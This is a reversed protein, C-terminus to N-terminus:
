SSKESYHSPSQGFQERFCKAFYASDTFGTEFAIETVTASKQSLLQAARRLRISRIFQSPTKGILAQLKRHLNRRSMAVERSLKEVDLEPDSMRDEVVDCASKLFQDDMSTVTAEKPQVLFEQRYREQLQHRLEILNKVRVLLEKSDFPKIM